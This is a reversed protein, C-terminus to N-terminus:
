IHILSLDEDSFGREEWEAITNRIDSEINNFYIGPDEQWDPFSLVTFHFEGSLERCPHSVGAQIAKESKIFNQYFISQKGEGMLAALIDLAAEDKHYNPVTPFVIDTLPLYVNDTYGTYIDSSLRPVNARQKKVEPGRNISGFYKEVLPIVEESNIDGCITLIANNPGYWRLFFNRLDDLTAREIDDVYGVIPWNYPHSPPYLSQGLIESSMGYPQKM